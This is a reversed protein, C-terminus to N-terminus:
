AEAKEENKDDVTESAKDAAEAQAHMAEAQAMVQSVDAIPRAIEEPKIDVGMAKSVEAAIQKIKGVSIAQKRFRVEPITGDDSAYDDYSKLGVSLLLADASANRGVDVNVRPPPTVHCKMWDAPADAVRRDNYRAWDAFFRYADKAGHSFRHFESRFFLHADDLVGRSVTGQLSEPLVLIMPIGRAACIQSIKYRWYWQTAASPNVNGQQEISEDSRIAIARSGLIKRYMAMRQELNEEKPGAKSPGNFRERIERQVNFEGSATKFFYSNESNQKAREMELLELDDLDHLPNLVPYYPTLGRYMGARTARFLHIVDKAPRFTWSSDWAMGDRLWYGSPMGNADIEVGDVQSQNEQLSFNQGPSSCRHGEILQLAPRSAEGPRKVRTKLTFIEGDTDNEDAWLQHVQSMTMLSDRCPAECWEQYAEAMRENWDHDSSAPIVGMGNPGVTYKRYVEKIKALLWVNREFYRIKRVLEWRTYSNADFRADTVLAPLYSRDPGSPQAGEYRNFLVATFAKIAGLINM